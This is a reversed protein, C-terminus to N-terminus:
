KGYHVLLLCQHHWGWLRFFLSKHLNFVVTLFFVTIKCSMKLYHVVTVPLCIASIHEYMANLRAIHNDSFALLLQNVFPLFFGAVPSSYIIHFTVSVFQIEFSFRFYKAAQQYNHHWIFVKKHNFQNFSFPSQHITADCSLKTFHLLNLLLHRDIKSSM